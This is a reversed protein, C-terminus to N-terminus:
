AAEQKFIGLKAYDVILFGDKFGICDPDTKVIEDAIVGVSSGDLGMKNGVINWDWEYLNHGNVEGIKKINKKLRRDSFMSMGQPSYALGGSIGRDGPNVPAATGGDFLGSSFGSLGLTGLGMLNGIGQQRADQHAQESGIIGQATIQGKGAIGQAIQPVYSSLGSLGALGQLQQNYSELLAKNQLQTNYDYLNSQVDGSRLGGTASASRLISEEGAEQGGMIAQYLPSQIARDILEQQSGEGGELDYLGGLGRLAGERLQRPLVDAEKLYQIGKKQTKLAAGSAAGAAESAGDGGGLFDFFGM